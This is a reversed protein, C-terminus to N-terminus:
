PVMLPLIRELLADLRQLLRDCALIVVDGTRCTAPTRRLRRCSAVLPITSAVAGRLHQIELRRPPRMPCTDRHLLHQARPVRPPSILAVTCLHGILGRTTPMSMAVLQPTADPWGTSLGITTVHSRRFPPFDRGYRRASNASLHKSNNPLTWGSM